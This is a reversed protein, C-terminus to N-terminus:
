LSVDDVTSTPGRTAVSPPPILPPVIGAIDLTADVPRKPGHPCRRCDCYAVVEGHSLPLHHYSLFLEQTEHPALRGKIGQRWAVWDAFFSKCSADGPASPPSDAMQSRPKSPAAGNTRTMARHAFISSSQSYIATSPTSSQSRAHLTPLVSHARTPLLSPQGLRSSCFRSLTQEDLRGNRTRLTPELPVAAGLGTEWHAGM